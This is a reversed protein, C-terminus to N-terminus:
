GLLNTIRESAKKVEADASETKSKFSNLQMQLYMISEENKSKLEETERILLDM